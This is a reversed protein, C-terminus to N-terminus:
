SRRGSRCLVAVHRRPWSQRDPRVRHSPRSREAGDVIRTLERLHLKLTCECVEYTKLFHRMDEEMITREIVYNEVDDSAREAAAVDELQNIKSLFIEILWTALMMRQTLDQFAPLLM